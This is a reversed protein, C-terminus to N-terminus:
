MAGKRWMESLDNPLMALANEEAARMEKKEEDTMDNLGCLHLVGHILVRLLERQFPENYEKANSEVTELGIVIDAFLLDDVPSGFTIVDTYHDHGLYKKNVELIREDDCFQFSIDGVEFNYVEAVSRIWENVERRRFPPIKVGDEYYNISM